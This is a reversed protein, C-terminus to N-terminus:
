AAVSTAPFTSAALDSVIMVWKRDWRDVLAGAVLSLVLAPVTASVGILVTSTAKGTQEWVWIMLAFRSMSTGLLSVVQGAWVIGFAWMGGRRVTQFM